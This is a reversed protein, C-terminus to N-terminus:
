NIRVIIENRKMFPLRWPPDYRNVMFSSKKSLNNEKLYVSLKETFHELRERSTSWSFTIVACKGLEFSEVSINDSSPEPLDSYSDVDLMYFLMNYSDKDSFSTVPATMPLSQNTNNKGDIYSFLTMFMSNDNNSDIPISAKAVPYSGYQRIEINGEKKLLEYQPEKYKQSFIM